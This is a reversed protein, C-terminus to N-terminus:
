LFGIGRHKLSHRVLDRINLFRRITESDGLGLEIGKGAEPIETIIVYSFVVRITHAEVPSPPNRM